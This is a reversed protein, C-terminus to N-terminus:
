TKKAVACKLYTAVLEREELFLEEEISCVEDIFIEVAPPRSRNKLSIFGYDSAMWPEHFPILALDGSKIEEKLMVLAAPCILDSKNIMEKVGYMTDVEVAPIFDGTDPDFQGAQRLDSPLVQHLRPPLRTCCWPFDLIDIISLNKKALVPHYQRCFFGGLHRGLPKTEFDPLHYIPSLEAVAIDAECNLLVNRIENFQRITNKVQLEPFRELMRGIATQGSIKHPWPGFAIRLLGMGAKKLINLDLNLNTEQLLIRRAHDLFVQGAETPSAKVGRGRDFLKVGYMEELNKISQVLAAHSINLNQAARRFSGAKALEVAYILQRFSMM